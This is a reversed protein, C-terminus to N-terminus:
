RLVGWVPAPRHNERHWAAQQLAVIAAVAADIKKPSRKHEKRVLDGFESSEARCNAVHIALRENGDHTMQGEVVATRFRDTAPGMRQRSHTPFEVVRGPWRKAWATLEARWLPPDAYLGLCNPDQMATNVCVEVLHRDVTWADSGDHEWLGVVSVHQDLTCRILATSDGSYSGDFALVHKPLPRNPPQKTDDRRAQWLDWPLWTSEGDVWQGLRARRFENERMKPPLLAHMADEYLFPRPGNMAPNALKWADTDDIACGAPALFEAFAFTPDNGARGAQVLGWMPGSGRHPSPTGIALVMSRQRKGSASVVAEYVDSGVYGIEDILAFSPDFGQLAGAESPLTTLMGGNSPVVLRDAYVLTRDALPRSSMVMNVVTRFAIGAQDESTAVLLVEPSPEDDAFLSYIALVSALTTKGNGRPLAWLGSRPRPDVYLGNLLNRQWPRLVLPRGAGQGKPPSLYKKAFEVVRRGGSAPLDETWLPLWSATEGKPGAKM